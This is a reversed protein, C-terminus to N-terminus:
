AANEIKKSLQTNRTLAITNKIAENIAWPDGILTVKEKGRTIGTYLLNRNLMTYHEKNLAMIVCKAESGQSKHCTIAYAPVLKGINHANFEFTRGDDFLVEVKKFAPYVAKITGTDGNYISTVPKGAEDVGEIRYDNQTNMVRDGVAFDFDSKRTTNTPNHITRLTQNLVNTATNSRAKMPVIVMIDKIDYNTLAKKFENEVTEKAIEKEAKIFEMSKTDSFDLDSFNLGENICKANKAITGGFRYSFKLKTTPVFRCAILDRLFNGAGISPLQYIDGVFLVRGFEKSIFKLLKNAKVIDIMSAEDVIFLFDEYFGSGAGHQKSLLFSDITLAEHGTSEQMRKAARGTPALCIVKDYKNIERYVEIITSIITTKGMGPGGTIVSFFNNLAMNCADRQIEDFTINNRKESALIKDTFDKKLPAASILNKIIEACSNEADNLYKLYIKVGDEGDEIVLKEEKVQEMIEDALNNITVQVDLKEKDLCEKVKISLEEDSVYVDGGDSLTKLTYVIAAGIRKRSDPAIGSALALKDVKKFGLGDIDYILQYPNEKLMKLSNEKYKNFIKEAQNETIDGKFFNVIDVYAKNLAYSNHVKEAKKESIGKIEALKTYDKEIVNLTDKGFKKVILDATKEGIGDLFTVIFRRIGDISLDEYIKCSKVDFQRGYIPKEIFEGEFDVISGELINGIMKGAAQFKETDTKIIVSGWNNTKRFIKMIEGHVIM